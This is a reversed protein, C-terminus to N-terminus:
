TRRKKPKQKGLKVDFTPHILGSPNAQHYELYDALNRLWKVPDTYALNTKPTRFLRGAKVKGEGVNCSQCLVARCHGTNHDHDLAPKGAAITGECIPCRYQQKVSYTKRVAPLSADTLIRLPATM